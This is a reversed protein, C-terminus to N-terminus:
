GTTAPARRVLTVLEDRNGSRGAMRATAEADQLVAHRLFDILLGIMSERAAVPDAVAPGDLFGRACTPDEPDGPLFHNSGTFDAWWAEVDPSIAETFTRAVPNPREQGEQGYRVASAAMIGDETGSMLLVPVDVPSDLLAGPEYGLVTAPQTHAGFTAAAALEPFWKRSASQLTITGGASHGFLAVRSTDLVGPVPGNADADAVADLVARLAGAPPRTGYTDPTIAGLDIGPSIGFQGPMLDTVLDFTVVAFGAEVLRIALWRYADQGVNVGPMVVVIPYPAGSRDAPIFGSMREELSGTFQAPYYIKLHATDFPEPAGPVRTAWWFSRVTM